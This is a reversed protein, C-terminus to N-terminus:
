SQSAHLDEGPGGTGLSSRPRLPATWRARRRWAVAEDGPYGIQMLTLGAAPVTEGAQRRDGSRLVATVDNPTLVGRGVQLLTGVMARVMHRLFADAIVDFHWFAGEVVWRAQLVTRVTSGPANQSQHTALAAFDHRGVLRRSARRMAALDLPGWVHYCYRQWWINPLRDRWLTYRYWRWLASRRADFGPAAETVARVLVDRPLRANVARQVAEVALRSTTRLSVVQGVAHVGSDTRGGPTVRVPHGLTAALAAELVGQITPAEPQIGFGHYATGDYELALRLTRM